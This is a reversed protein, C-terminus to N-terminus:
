RIVMWGTRRAVDRLTAGMNWALRVGAVANTSLQREAFLSLQWTASPLPLQWELAVYPGATTSAGAALARTLGVGGDFRLSDLPFMRLGFGAVAFDAFVTQQQLIGTAFLSTERTLHAEVQAQEALATIGPIHQYTVQVGATVPQWHGAVALGAEEYPTDGYAAADLDVIALFRTTLRETARIRGGGMLGSTWGLQAEAIVGPTFTARPNPPEAVSSPPAEPPETAAGLSFNVGVLGGWGDYAPNYSGIGQGNSLHTVALDGFLTLRAGLPVELGAGAGLIFDYFDGGPLLPGGLFLLFGASLRAYPRVAWAPFPILRIALEGGAGGQATRGSDTQGRTGLLLATTRLRLTPAALWEMGVGIAGADIGAVDRMGVLGRADVSVAARARWDEQGRAERALLAALVFTIRPSARM